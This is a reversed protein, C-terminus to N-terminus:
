QKQWINTMCNTIHSAPIHVLAVPKSTQPRLWYPKVAVHLPNADSLVSFGGSSFKPPYKKYTPIPFSKRLM